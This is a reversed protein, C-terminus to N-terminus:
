NVLMRRRVLEAAHTTGAVQGFVTLSSPSLSGSAGGYYKRCSAPPASSRLELMWVACGAKGGEKRSASPGLSRAGGEVLALERM